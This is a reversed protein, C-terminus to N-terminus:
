IVGGRKELVVVPMNWFDNLAKSREFYRKVQNSRYSRVIQEYDRASELIGKVCKELIYFDDKYGDFQIVKRQEKKIGYEQLSPLHTELFLSREYLWGVREDRFYIEKRMFISSPSAKADSSIVFGNAILYEVARTMEVESAM